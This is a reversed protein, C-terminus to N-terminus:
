HCDTYTQTEWEMKRIHRTIVFEDGRRQIETFEGQTAHETETRFFAGTTLQTLNPCRPAREYSFRHVHGAIYLIQKGSQAL